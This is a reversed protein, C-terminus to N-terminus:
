LEDMIVLFKEQRLKRQGTTTTQRRAATRYADMAERIVKNSSPSANEPLLKAFARLKKRVKPYDPAAGDAELLDSDLLSTIMTYFNTHDSALRSEGLDSDKYSTDLFKFCRRLKGLEKTTLETTDVEDNTKIFAKLIQSPQRHVGTRTFLAIEVLREWMRDVM